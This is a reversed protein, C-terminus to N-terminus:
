MRSTVPEFGTDGVLRMGPTVTRAEKLDRAQRMSGELDRRAEQAQVSLEERTEIRARM